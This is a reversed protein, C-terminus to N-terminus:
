QTNSLRFFHFREGLYGIEDAEVSDFRPSKNLLAFIQRQKLGTAKSIHRCSLVVNHGAIENRRQFHEVVTAEM